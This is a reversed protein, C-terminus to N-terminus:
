MGGVFMWYKGYLLGASADYRAKAPEGRVETPPLWTWTKTDLM